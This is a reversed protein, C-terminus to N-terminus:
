DQKLRGVPLIYLPDERIGLVKKVSRDDFAGVCVMGLGLAVCELSINQACHGAELVVYRQARDGYRSATRQYNAAIVIDIPASRVWPQFLAAAALQSRHDGTGVQVLSTEEPVYRYVGPELDEVRGAVLYCVLPYTAGASPVTRHGNAATVGQGSWLLQGVEGVRLPSDAFTRVSRRRYIAEELSTSSELSPRPLKVTRGEGTKADTNM